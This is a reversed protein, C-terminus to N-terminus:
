FPKVFLEYLITSDVDSQKLDDLAKKVAPFNGLVAVILAAVASVM